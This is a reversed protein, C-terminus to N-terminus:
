GPPAAGPDGVAGPAGPAFIGAGGDQPEAPPEPIFRHAERATPVEVTGDAAKRTLVAIIILAYDFVLKGAPGGASLVSLIRHARADVKALAIWDDALIECPAKSGDRSTVMIEAVTPRIGREREKLAASLMKAAVTHLEKIAVRAQAWDLDPLIEIEAKAKPAKEGVAPHGDDAARYAPGINLAERYEKTPFGRKREALEDVSVDRGLLESLHAAMGEDTLDHERQYATVSVAM